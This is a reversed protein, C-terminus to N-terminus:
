WGLGAAIGVFDCFSFDSSTVTTVITVTTVTTVTSVTMCINSNNLVATVTM